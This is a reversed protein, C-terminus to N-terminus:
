KEVKLAAAQSKLEELRLKKAKEQEIHTKMFAVNRRFFNGKAKMRYDHYEECSLEGEDKMEKLTNRMSRITKTWITKDSM